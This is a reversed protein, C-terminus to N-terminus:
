CAFASTNSRPDASAIQNRAIHALVLSSLHYVLQTPALEQTTTHDKLLMSGQVLRTFNLNAVSYDTRRFESSLLVGM